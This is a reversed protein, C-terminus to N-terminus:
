RAANCPWRGARSKRFPCRLRAAATACTPRCMWILWTSPCSPRKVLLEKVRQPDELGPLQVLIRDDGQRQIIPENTGTEDVRRRVIEISQGITQDKIEKITKESFRAELVAGEVLAIDLTPDVSRIMKRVAEEDAPDRLTVRLGDPLAAIRRYGVKATRLEPRLTTVLDESREKIVSSLDVQLLIHSGGQLDLGLNISQSPVWSPLSSAAWERGGPGMMTPVSYLVGWLCVLVILIFKWRPIQYM